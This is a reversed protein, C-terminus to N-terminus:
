CSGPTQLQGIRTATPQILASWELRHSGSLPFGPGKLISRDMLQVAASSLSISTYIQAGKRAETNKRRISGNNKRNSIYIPSKPSNEQRRNKRKWTSLFPSHIVSTPYLRKPSVTGDDEDSHTAVVLNNNCQMRGVCYEAHGDGYM